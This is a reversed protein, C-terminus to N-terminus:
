QNHALVQYWIFHLINSRVGSNVLHFPLTSSIPYRQITVRDLNIDILKWLYIHIYKQM